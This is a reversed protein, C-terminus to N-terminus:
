KPQQQTCCHIGGGGLAISDINIQEIARNPYCDQLVQRAEEDADTDGFEPMIVADNCVYFNVYGLATDKRKLLAKRVKKPDPSHLDVVKIVRNLADESNKLIRRNTETDPDDPDSHLIVLGPKQKGVFRAYFDTHGDTIELGKVGPLWIIKEVGLIRNLEKEIQTKTVNSNRNKNLSCSETVIATGEGDVEISGGELVLFTSIVETSSAECIFEAVQSDRDHKQKNGWGNFNFNVALNKALFVPGSDRM